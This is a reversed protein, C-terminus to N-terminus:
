VKLSGDRVLGADGAAGSLEGGAQCRRFVQEDHSCRATYARELALKAPLRNTLEDAQTERAL